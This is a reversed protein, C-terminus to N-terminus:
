SSFKPKYGVPALSPDEDRAPANDPTMLFPTPAVNEVGLDKGELADLALDVSLGAIIVGRDNAVAAISGARVKDSVADTVYVAGIKIEGTKGAQEVAGVAADAAVANGAIYKVEPYAKLTNEV